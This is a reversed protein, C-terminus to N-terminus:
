HRVSASKTDLKAVLMVHGTRVAVKRVAEVVKIAKTAEEIAEDVALTEEVAEMVVGTTRAAVSTAEDAWAVGEASDVVV